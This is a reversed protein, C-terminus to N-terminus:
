RVLEPVLEYKSPEGRHWCNLNDFTAKAINTLAETTAFAQHPTILVNPLEILKQLLEDKPKNKSHDYFFVGSEYEYVDTGYGAIRKSELAQVIDQTNVIAGRAINILM